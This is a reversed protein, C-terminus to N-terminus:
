ARKRVFWRLYPLGAALGAAAAAALAPQSARAAWQLLFALFALSTAIFLIHVARLSM